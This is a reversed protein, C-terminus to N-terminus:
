KLKQIKKLEQSTLQGKQCPFAFYTNSSNLLSGKYKKVYVGRSLSDITKLENQYIEKNSVEM